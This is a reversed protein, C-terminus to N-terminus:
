VGGTFLSWIAIKGHTTKLCLNFEVHIKLNLQQSLKISSMMTPCACFKSLGPFNEKKREINEFTAQQMFSLVDTQLGKGYVVFRCSFYHLFLFALFTVFGYEFPLWCHGLM